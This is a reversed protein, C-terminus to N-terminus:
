PCTRGARPSGDSSFGLPGQNQGTPCFNEARVLYFYIKGEPPNEIDEALTNPGNNSEVCTTSVFFDDASDARLTDYWIITGGPSSPTQWFMAIEDVFRLSTAEGPASWIRADNDNCDASPLSPCVAHRDGDNDSEPASLVPWQPDSCNDNIGDCIEPAGPYEAPRADDCDGQCETFSDGDDDFENTGVLSPWVSLLCDNNLGDGCLQT